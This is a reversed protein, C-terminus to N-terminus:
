PKPHFQNIEHKPNSHVDGSLVEARFSIDFHEPKAPMAPQAAESSSIQPANPDIPTNMARAMNAHGQQITALM